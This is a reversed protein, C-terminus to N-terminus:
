GPMDEDKFNEVQDRLTIRRIEVEGVCSRM